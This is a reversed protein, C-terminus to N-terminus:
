RRWFAYRGFLRRARQAAARVWFRPYLSEINRMNGNFCDTVVQAYYNFVSFNWVLANCRALLFMDVITDVAAAHDSHGVQGYDAVARGVGPPPFITRRTVANPLRALLNHMPYADTAFFIKSRERLYHPFGRLALRRAREIKGLFAKGKNFIAIDVRGYYTEGKAFDGNGSAINVGVVFSGRLHEAHWRDIETAIFDRPTVFRYFEKLTWFQDAPNGAPDLRPPGHHDRLVLYRASSGGCRIVERAQHLSLPGVGEVEGELEPCPAYFVPVGQIQPVPEFFETFYNLSKDQLFLTGRWDVIVARGLARAFWVAGALSVLNSGVGSEPWPCTVVYGNTTM